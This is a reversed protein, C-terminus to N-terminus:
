VHWRESERRKQKQQKHESRAKLGIGLRGNRRRLDDHWGGFFRELNGAPAFQKAGAVDPELAQGLHGLDNARTFFLFFSREGVALDDVEVGTRTLTNFFSLIELDDSWAAVDFANM